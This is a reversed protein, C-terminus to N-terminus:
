QQGAGVWVEFREFNRNRCLDEVLEENREPERASCRQVERVFHDARMKGTRSMLRAARRQCQTDGPTMPDTTRIPIDCSPLPRKEAGKSMGATIVPVKIPKEARATFRSRGQSPVAVVQTSVAVTHPAVTNRTISAGGTHGSSSPSSRHVTLSAEVHPM